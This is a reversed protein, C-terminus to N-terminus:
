NFIEMAKDLDSNVIKTYIQTTKITSHGLLKSVYEIRMGKQLARTAFSHRSSHFSIAKKIEAKFAITKLNKNVFATNSSLAKFLVNPNSYDTTNSLFPFVFDTIQGTLNLGKYFEMIELAKSPLKISISEKTKQTFLRVHSDDYNNWRLQLLDSIRIGGAYTAFVYMNRHHFMVTNEKLALNEIAEIETDTLYARSTNEWSLKYKNFPNAIPEILDERIADNFFKRFVKFNSHITNPKNNLVERLYKEYKKIFNLDFEDFSIDSQRLYTKLKNVIANVRNYTGVKCKRLDSNQYEEIYKILSLSAKGMIAEKIKKSSVYKKSTELTVATGESEAIKKAIFANVKTANPYKKKVRHIKEDWLDPHVKIGISIFKAKRNKTIRIYVPMEGSDDKKNAKLILKVSAM